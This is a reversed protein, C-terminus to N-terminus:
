LEIEIDGAKIRTGGSSAGDQQIDYKELLMLFRPNQSLSLFEDSTVIVQKNPIGSALASDLAAIAADHDGRRTKVRAIIFHAEGTSKGLVILEESISTAQGWDESAFAKEADALTVDKPKESCAAVFFCLAFLVLSRTSLVWSRLKSFALM